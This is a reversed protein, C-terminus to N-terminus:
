IRMQWAAIGKIPHILMIINLTLNDRIWLALIVEVVLVWSVTIWAPRRWALLLGFLCALVDSFSNILSDGYYGLSITKTRYRHIVQDTNEYVEWAAELTVVAMAAPGFSAAGFVLRTLGYLAAGHIVHTFTYPDFVQQSNQDSDIAGSWLRVPGNRYTPTRGMEFEVVMAFSLVALVVALDGLGGRQARRRVYVQRWATLLLGAVVILLPPVSAMWASM